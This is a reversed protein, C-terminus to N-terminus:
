DQKNSELFTPLSSKVNVIFENINKEKKSRGLFMYESVAVRGGGGQSCLLFHLVVM